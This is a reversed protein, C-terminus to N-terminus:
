ERVTNRCKARRCKPSCKYLRRFGYFPNKITCLHTNLALLQTFIFAGIDHADPNRSSVLDTMCKTRVAALHQLYDNAAVANESLENVIKIFLNTTLFPRKEIEQFGFWLADKYHM